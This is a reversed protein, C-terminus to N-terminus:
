PKIQFISRKQIDRNKYDVIDYQLMEKKKRQKKGAECRTKVGSEGHGQDLRM